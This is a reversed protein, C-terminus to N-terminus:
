LNKAARFSPLKRVGFGIGLGILAVLIYFWVRSLDTSFVFWVIPLLPVVIWWAKFKSGFAQLLLPLVFVFIVVVGIIQAGLAGFGFFGSGVAEGPFFLTYFQFGFSTGIFYAILGSLVVLGADKLFTMLM